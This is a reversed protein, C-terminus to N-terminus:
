HTDLPLHNLLSLRYQLLSQILPQPSQIENQIQHLVMYFNQLPFRCVMAKLAPQHCPLVPHILFSNSVYLSVASNSSHNLHLFYQLTSKLLCFYSLVSVPAWKTLSSGWDELPHHQCWGIHLMCLGLHTPAHPSSPVNLAFVSFFYIVDVFQQFCHDIKLHMNIRKPSVIEVAVIQLMLLFPNSQSQISQPPKIKTKGNMNTSSLKSSLRPVHVKFSVM